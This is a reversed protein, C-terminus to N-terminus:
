DVVTSKKEDKKKDKRKIKSSKNLDQMSTDFKITNRVNERKSVEM